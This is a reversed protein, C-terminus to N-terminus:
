IKRETTIKDQYLLLRTLINPPLQLKIIHTDLKNGREEGNEGITVDMASLEKYTTLGLRQLDAKMLNLSNPFLLNTKNFNIVSANSILIKM